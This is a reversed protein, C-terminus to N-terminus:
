LIVTSAHFFSLSVLWRLRSRGITVFVAAAFSFAGSVASIFMPAISVIPSIMSIAIPRALTVVVSGFTAALVWAFIVVSVTIAVSITFITFSSGLSVLDAIEKEINEEM